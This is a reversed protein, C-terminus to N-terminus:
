FKNKFAGAFPKANGYGEITEPIERGIANRM